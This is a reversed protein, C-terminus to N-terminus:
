TPTLKRLAATTLPGAIGDPKLGHASQFAAVARRTHRGYSGDVALPPDAGLRNLAAQLWETIDGGSRGGGVGAPASAPPPVNPGPGSATSSPSLAPLADVLALSADLKLLAAMM